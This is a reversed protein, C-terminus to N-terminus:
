DRWFWVEFEVGEDITVFGTFHERAWKATTDARHAKDGALRDLEDSEVHFGLDPRPWAGQDYTADVTSVALGRSRGVEILTMM